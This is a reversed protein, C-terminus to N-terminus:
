LTIKTDNYHQSLRSQDLLVESVLVGKFSILLGPGTELVVVTVSQLATPGPM